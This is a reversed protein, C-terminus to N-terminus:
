KLGHCIAVGGEEKGIYYAVALHDLTIFGHSVPHQLLMVFDNLFNPVDSIKKLIPTVIIILMSEYQNGKANVM